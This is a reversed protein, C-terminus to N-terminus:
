RGTHFARVYHVALLAEYMNGGSLYLISRYNFIETTTKYFLYSMYIYIRRLVQASRLAFLLM